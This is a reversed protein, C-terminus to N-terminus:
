RKILGAIKRGGPIALLDTETITKTLIGIMFYCVAAFPMVILITMKMPLGLALLGVYVGYSMIGMLGASILPKVLLNMWNFHVRLHKCLYRINLVAYILYCISTSHVFGYINLVPISLAIVNVVIKAICALLANFTPISQKSMGQLIGASLQALAIGIMGISGAALLEAGSSDGIVLTLIPEAFLLFGVFSPAAILLGIKFILQVKRRIDDFQKAATAAAIAPVTALGLQLILSVPINMFTMYQFSLQGSLQNVISSTELFKADKVPVVALNSQARLADISKPLASSIMSQDISTMISFISTSIIVPIMMALIEKLIKGRSEDEYAISEKLEEKIRGRKMWYISVLVVLGAVAGIGTGLASGTAGWELNKTAKLFSYALVVSFIVNFIQEIIQSSATPTMDGMGQFYGRLVALSTAIMVTPALARIPLAVTQTPFFTSEIFEASFWLGLAMCAAVILAYALALKYVRQAAKYAGKARREAILKSLAGPIAIATLTLIVAYIGYAVGYYSQGEDGLINRIPIRYVMGIIRSVLVGISLIMAGKVLSQKKESKEM